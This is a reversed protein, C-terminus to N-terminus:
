SAQTQAIADAIAVTRRAMEAHLIEVMRGDVQIAGRGKNEPLAFAAIIKRAFAVEEETPSFAANCPAIQQPHILTKGDFGLQHAQACEAAFGEANAIDNYVGDLIDIGFARAAAVCSMLWPLMPARGPVIRARTDKALDNTGMVFGALRTSPDLAAAAIDRANLMALPTEMMAWVRVREEARLGVLHRAVDRLQEPTSVKPVLIADPGAAAVALDDLWWATDLGNIRVIVERRGFGGQKLAAVILDRATAKADPAVADELDLIVADAPLSRAKEMARANSGPMYLVSRRPRITM